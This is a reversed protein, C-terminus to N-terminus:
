QAGRRAHQMMLAAARCVTGISVAAVLCVGIGGSPVVQQKVGASITKCTCGCRVLETNQVEKCSLFSSMLVSNWSAESSMTMTMDYHTSTYVLGLWGRFAPQSVVPM